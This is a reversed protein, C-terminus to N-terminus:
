RPTPQQGKKLDFFDHWSNRWDSMEKIIEIEKANDREGIGNSSWVKTDDVSNASVREAHM